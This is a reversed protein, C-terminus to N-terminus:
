ISNLTTLLLSPYFNNNSYLALSFYSALYSFFSFSCFSYVLSIRPLYNENKLIKAQLKETFKLYLYEAEAFIELLVVLGVIICKGARAFSQLEIKWCEHDTKWALFLALHFPNKWLAILTYCPNPPFYFSEKDEEIYINKRIYWRSSAEPLIHNCSCLKQSAIKQIRSFNLWFHSM